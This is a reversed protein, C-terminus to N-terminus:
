HVIALPSCGLSRICRVRMARRRGLPACDWVVSFHAHCVFLVAVGVLSDSDDNVTRRM